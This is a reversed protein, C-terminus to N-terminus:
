VVEKLQGLAADPHGDTLYHYALVFRAAPSQPNRGVYDELARLQQTYTEPNDYLGILTTWDWGPGVSLVAYIAAAAEDYRKLAFLVLARFEHLTPDNPLQRIAQDTLDLARTYDGQRFADRAQDFTGMSQNTVSEEPPAATADIPQAYDYVVPQEVVVPA